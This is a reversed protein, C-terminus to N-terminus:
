ATAKMADMARHWLYIGLKRMQAVIAKKSGTRAAMQAFDKKVEPDLRVRSWAAQNLMKRVRPPGQRTIHGKRDDSEGSEHTSPILGLYCGLQRRNQFRHVDGLETLFTMATLVGVGKTKRLEKVAPEHRAEEALAEVDKQVQRVEKQLFELHRLHSQLAAKVPTGMRGGPECLSELWKVYGITWTAEQVHIKHLQLLNQISTKEQAVMEGVALRRRVLERDERVVVPPVWVEPLSAGAVRAAILYTQLELADKVDTKQKRGKASKPMLSPSVVVVSWQRDKMEDYVEFGCSSAEYVAQVQYEKLRDALRNWGKPNNAVKMTEPKCHLPNFAATITKKHVDLGVYAVKKMALEKQQLSFTEV